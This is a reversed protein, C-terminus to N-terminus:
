SLWVRSLLAAVKRIAKRALSPFDSIRKAFLIAGLNTINYNGTENKIIMGDELLAELILEKSSPLDLSLMEFYSSYDLERLVFDGSVNEM